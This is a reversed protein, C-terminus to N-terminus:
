STAQKGSAGAGSTSGSGSSATTGPADLGTARFSWALRSRGMGNESVYPTATLGIFSVPRFPAGPLAEPLVPQVTAAIRVSFQRDNKRAEPDADLVDVTWIPLGSEEDVAQVPADRTSRDFDRLPGVESVAFAGHPFVEGFDVKIRRPMSM